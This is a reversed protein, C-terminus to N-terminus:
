IYAKCASLRNVLGPDPTNKAGCGQSFYAVCGYTLEGGAGLATLAIM